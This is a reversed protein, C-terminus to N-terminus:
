EAYPHDKLFQNYAKKSSAEVLIEFNGFVRGHEPHTAEFENIWEFWDEHIKGTITWGTSEVFGNVPDLTRAQHSYDLSFEQKFRLPLKNSDKTM